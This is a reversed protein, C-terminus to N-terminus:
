LTTVNAVSLYKGLKEMTASNDKSMQEVMMLLSGYPADVTHGNGSKMTVRCSVTDLVEISEICDISISLGDRIAILKM